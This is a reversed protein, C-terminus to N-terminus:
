ELVGEANQLVALRHREALVGALHNKDDVGGAVAAEGRLVVAELLQIGAELVLPQYDDTERGIIKALLFRAAIPLDGIEAPQGIADLKRHGALRYDLALSGVGEIPLQGLHGTTPWPPIKM